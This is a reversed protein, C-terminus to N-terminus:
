LKYFIHDGIRATVKTRDAWSPEVSRTHYHNAGGTPDTLSSMALRAAAVADIWSDNFEPYKTVQPDDANFCSFQKPQLVVGRYTDPWRSDSVRNRIVHGVARQGEFPQGRSERWICLAVLFETLLKDAPIM